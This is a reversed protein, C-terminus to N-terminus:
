NEFIAGVVSKDSGSLSGVRGRPPAGVVKNLYGNRSVAMGPVGSIGPLSIFTENAVFVAGVGALGLSVGQLIPAPKSMLIPVAAGGALCVLGGIYTPMTTFSSKIAQNVFVGAIGGIAAGAAMELSTKVMPHVAGVRGRRRHSSKKKTKRKAM